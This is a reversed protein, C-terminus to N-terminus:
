GLFPNLLELVSSNLPTVGEWSWMNRLLDFTMMGCIALVMLCFSLSLINAMSFRAESAPEGSPMGGAGLAIAGFDDTLVPAAGAGSDLVVVGSEETMEDLAIVQSSDDEGEEAEEGLPTLAFPEEGDEGEAPELPELGGLDVDKEIASGLDFSSGLAASGSLDLPVEDLARGSDSPSVINIGSSETSLTIDSGDGLVQDDDDDLELASLGTLGAGSADSEGGINVGSLEVDL